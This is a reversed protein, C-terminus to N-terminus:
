PSSTFLTFFLFVYFVYVGVGKLIDILPFPRLGGVWFRLLSHHFVLWAYWCAYFAEPGMVFFQTYGTRGLAAIYIIFSVWLPPRFSSIKVM